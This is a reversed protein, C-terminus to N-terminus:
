DWKKSPTRKSHIWQETSGQKGKEVEPGESCLVNCMISWPNRWISSQYLRWNIQHCIQCLFLKAVNLWMRKKHGHVMIMHNQHSNKNKLIKGCLECNQSPTAYHLTEVHRRCSSRTGFEKGCCVCRWGRGGDLTIVPECKEDIEGTIHDFNSWWYSSIQVM